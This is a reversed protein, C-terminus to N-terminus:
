TRAARAEAELAAVLRKLSRIVHGRAGAARADDLEAQVAAAADEWGRRDGAGTQRATRIADWAARVGPGTCIEGAWPMPLAVDAPIHHHDM